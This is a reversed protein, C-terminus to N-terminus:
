GAVGDLIRTSRRLIFACFYKLAQNRFYLIYKCVDGYKKRIVVIVAAHATFYLLSTGNSKSLFYISAMNQSMFVANRIIRVSEQYIITVIKILCDTKKSIKKNFNEGSTQLIKKKTIQLKTLSNTNQHQQIKKSCFINRRTFLGM